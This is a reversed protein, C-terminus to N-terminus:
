NTAMKSLIDLGLNKVETISVNQPAVLWCYKKLSGDFTSSYMNWQFINNQLVFKYILWKKLVVAPRSLVWILLNHETLSRGRRLGTAGKLGAMLTQEVCLDPSVVLWFNDTRRAVFYGKRFELSIEEDLYVMEQAGLALLIRYCKVWHWSPYIGFAM